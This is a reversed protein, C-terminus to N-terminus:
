TGEVYSKFGDAPKDASDDLYRCIVPVLTRRMLSRQVETSRGSQM